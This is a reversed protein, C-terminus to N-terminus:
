KIKTLNTVLNSTIEVHAETTTVKRQVARAQKNLDSYTNNIIGNSYTSSVLALPNSKDYVLAASPAVSQEPITLTIDKDLGTKYTYVQGNDTIGDTDKGEAGVMAILGDGTIAVSMGFKDSDAKDSATLKNVETWADDITARKYTYVQGNDTHGDTDKFFAGVMAVLGDDTIAVSPGFRDNDAKDSATLKNVETWADDITARKYTYAQGNHTLGDTDKAEAGVMAVLGDSTIAVSRGFYDGSAKDSATLKSVETWADDITVRKYTYVQGNDTLNNTDKDWAGVMAALGDGTIAVSMGFNDGDAKDSATLKSVETWADDITARKYTYVQGNETLGDTDKYSAGVMAVLGDSTIAVSIGFYNDNDKDSATLKNVETWADDITARKYTYVQGNETLGDTDKYSAGVM